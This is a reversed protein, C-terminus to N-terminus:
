AFKSINALTPYIFKFRKVRLECRVRIGLMLFELCGFSYM